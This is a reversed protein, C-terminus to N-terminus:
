NRKNAMPKKDHLCTLLEERQCSPLLRAVNRMEAPSWRMFCMCKTTFNLHAGSCIRESGMTPGSYLVLHDSARSAKSSKPSAVIVGSDVDLAKFGVPKPEPKQGAAAAFSEPNAKFSKLNEVTCTTWRPDFWEITSPTALFNMNDYEVGIAVSSHMNVPAIQPNFHSLRYPMVNMYDTNIITGLSGTEIGGMFVNSNSRVSAAPVIDYDHCDQWAAWIMDIFSHHVFFLPEDASNDLTMTGGIFRHVTDHFLELARSFERFNDNSAVVNLIEERTAFYGAANLDRQLCDNGLIKNSFPGSQVCKKPNGPTAFGTGGYYEETFVPSKLPSAADKTWDWFPIAICNAEPSTSRLADEMMLLYQRHWPLFADTLHAFNFNIKDAHVWMIEDWSGSQRMAAMARWFVDKENRTLSLLEKRVRKTPCPVVKVCGGKQSSDGTYGIPCRTCKHVGTDNEICVSEDACPNPNCVGKVDVVTFVAEFGKEEAVSYGGGFESSRYEVRLGKSTASFLVGPNNTGTFRAIPVFPSVADDFVWIFDDGSMIEVMKFELKIRQPHSPQGPVVVNWECWTNSRIGGPGDSLGGSMASVTETTKIGNQSNCNWTQQGFTSPLIVSLLIVGIMLKGSFQSYYLNTLM